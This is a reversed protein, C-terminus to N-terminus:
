PLFVNQQLITEHLKLKLRLSEYGHAVFRILFKEGRTHQGWLLRIECQM